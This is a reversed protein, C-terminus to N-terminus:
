QATGSQELRGAGGQGPVAQTNPDVDNRVGSAAQNPLMNNVGSSPRNMNQQNSRFDPANSDQQQLSPNSYNPQQQVGPINQSSRRMMGPPCSGTDALRNDTGYTAPNAPNGVASTQNPISSGMQNSSTYGTSRSGTNNATMGFGTQNDFRRSAEVMQRAQGGATAGGYALVNGGITSAHEHGTVGGQQYGNPSYGWERGYSTSQNYFGQQRDFTNAQTGLNTPNTVTNASTGMESTNTGMEFSNTARRRNGSENYFRRQQEISLNQTTGSMSSPYEGGMGGAGGGVGQNIVSGNTGSVYSGQDINSRPDAQNPFNQTSPQLAQGAMSSSQMNSSMPVCDAPYQSGGSQASNGPNTMQALAPLGLFTSATVVSVFATMKKALNLNTKTRM